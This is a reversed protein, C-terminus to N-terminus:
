ETPADPVPGATSDPKDGDPKKITISVGHPNEPDTSWQQKNPVKGEIRDLAERIAGLDGKDLGLELMKQALPGAYGFETGEARKELLMKLVTAVNKSGKPRGNPNGSTGPQFQTEKNPFEGM